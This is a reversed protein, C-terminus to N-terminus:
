FHLHPSEIFHQICNSHSCFACDLFALHDCTMVAYEIIDTSFAVDIVSTFNDVTEGIDYGTNQWAYRLMRKCEETPLQIYIVSHLKMIFFRDHLKPQMNSSRLKIFDTIRKSYIKYQRFFYVDLPQAYKTTKPPIIKLDVDKGGFGELLVQEDKHGSWSGCLILSNTSLHTNLVSLFLDEPKREDEEWECKSKYNLYRCQTHSRCHCRCYCRSCTQVPKCFFSM